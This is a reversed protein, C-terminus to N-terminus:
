RKNLIYIYKNDMKCKINRGRQARVIGIQDRKQGKKRRINAETGNRDAETGVASGPIGGEDAWETAGKCNIYRGYIVLAV